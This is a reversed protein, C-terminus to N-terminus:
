PAAPARKSEELLKKGKTTALVRITPGSAVGPVSRFRALEAFYALKEEYEKAQQPYLDPRNVFRAYDASSAVLFDFEGLPVGRILGHPGLETVELGSGELGPTGFERAVSSGKPLNARIWSDALLRTDPLLRTRVYARAASAEGGASALWAVALIAVGLTAARRPLFSPLRVSASAMVAFAPLLVVLYREFAVRHSGMMALYAVPYAVLVFAVRAEIRLAALLGVLVLLGGGTGFMGPMWGLYRGYSTLSGTEAGAHGTAFHESQWALTARFTEFDLVSYPTIALFVLAAVVAGALAGKRVVDRPALGSSAVHAAVVSAAVFAAPYKTGAALGVAAGAIVHRSVTAGRLAIGVAAWLALAVAFAAPADTTVAFSNAVHLRSVALLFAAAVGAMEGFALAAAAYVVPVTAVAFVVTM